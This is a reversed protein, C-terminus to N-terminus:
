IFNSKRGNVVLAAIKVSVSRLVTGIGTGAAVVVDRNGTEKGTGKEKKVVENEADITLISEV